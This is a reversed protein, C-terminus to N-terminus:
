WGFFHILVSNAVHTKIAQMNLTKM